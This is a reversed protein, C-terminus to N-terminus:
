NAIFRRGSSLDAKAPLESTLFRGFNSYNLFHLRMEQVIRKLRNQETRFSSPKNKLFLELDEGALAERLKESTPFKNRFGYRGYKGALALIAQTLQDEDTMAEGSPM